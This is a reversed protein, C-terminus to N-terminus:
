KTLATKQGPKVEADGLLEDGTTVSVYVYVTYTGPFLARSSNLLSPNSSLKRENGQMPYWFAHSPEGEVVLNGTWLITKKGAEIAVKRQTRNVDVDYEGPALEISTNLLRPNGDFARKGNQRVDFWDVPSADISKVELGGVDARDYPVVSREAVEKPAEGATSPPSTTTVNEVSEPQRCAVGLIVALLVAASISTRM